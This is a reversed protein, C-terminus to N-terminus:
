ETLEARNDEWGHCANQFKGVIKEPARGRRRRLHFAVDGVFPRIIDCRVASMAAHRAVMIVTIGLVHVPHRFQAHVGVAHADFPRAQLGRRERREVLRFQLPVHIQEVPELRRADRRHDHQMVKGIRRPNGRRAAPQVRGRDRRKHIVDVFSTDAKFSRTQSQFVNLSGSVYADNVYRSPPKGGNWLHRSSTRDPFVMRCM